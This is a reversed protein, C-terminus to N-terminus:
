KILSEAISSIGLNAGTRQEVNTNNLSKSIDIQQGLNAGAQFGQLGAGLTQLLQSNGSVINKQMTNFAEIRKNELALNSNEMSQYMKNIASQSEGKQENIMKSTKLHLEQVERGVSAGATIGSSRRSVIKGQAEQIDAQQEVQTMATARSMERAVEISNVYNNYKDSAITSEIANFAQIQAENNKKIQESKLYSNFVSGVASGIQAYNFNAM